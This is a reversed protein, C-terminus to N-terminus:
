GTGCIYALVFPLFAPLVPYSRLLFPPFRWFAPLTSLGSLEAPLRPALRRQPERPKELRFRTIRLFLTSGMTCNIKPTKTPPKKPKTRQATQQTEPPALVFEEQRLFREFYAFGINQLTRLKGRKATWERGRVHVAIM